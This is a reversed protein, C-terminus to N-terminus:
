EMFVKYLRKSLIGQQAEDYDNKSCPLFHEENIQRVWYKEFEKNIAFEFDQDINEIHTFVKESANEVKLSDEQLGEVFYWISMAMTHLDNLTYDNQNIFALLGSKDSLAGFRILQILEECSLGTPLSENNCVLLSTCVNLDVLMCEQERLLPEADDMANRLMGLSSSKNSASELMIIDELSCLHRQFGLHHTIHKPNSIIRNSFYFVENFVSDPLDSIDFDLAIVCMGKKSANQIITKFDGVNAKSLSIKSFDISYKEFVNFFSDFLNTNKAVILVDSYSKIQLNDDFICSFITNSM